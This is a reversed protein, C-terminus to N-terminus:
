HTGRTPQNTLVGITRDIGGVATSIYGQGEKAHTLLLIVVIILGIGSFLGFVDKTM